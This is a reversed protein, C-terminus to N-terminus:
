WPYSVMAIFKEAEGSHLTDVLQFQVELYALFELKSSLYAIVDREMIYIYINYCRDAHFGWCYTALACSCALQCGAATALGQVEAPAVETHSESSSFWSYFWPKNKM